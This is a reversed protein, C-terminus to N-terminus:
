FYHDCLSSECLGPFSVNLIVKVFFKLPFSPQNLMHQKCNKASHVSFFFGGVYHTSLGLLERAVNM